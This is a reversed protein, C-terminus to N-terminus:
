PKLTTISEFYMRGKVANVEITDNRPPGSLRYTRFVLKNIGVSLPIRTYSVDSPLITWSRTDAQETIANALGLVAGAEKNQQRLAYEGAKKVAMRLLATGMERMFRDNLSKHAIADLPEVTEFAYRKGGVLVEAGSYTKKRSTFKPFAIRFVKLAALNGADQSSVSSSPFTFTIGLNVNSFTIFGNQQVVVFDLSWQEKAPVLGNNWFVILSADPAAEDVAKIGFLNRYYEAEEKFGTKLATRIIDRKLQEPPALSFFNTYDGAYIEYANRYAIFANNPDGSAEYILGMLLHGFADAKYKPKDKAADYLSNLLLNMRRCEVLASEFKREGLYSVAAAYHLMVREFDEPVYPKVSPNVLFSLAELGLSKRADEISRDAELFLAQAGSWNRMLYCTYASNLLYLSKNRPRQGKKEAKELQKVADTYEENVIDSVFNRQRVHYPRCQYFLLMALALLAGSVRRLM